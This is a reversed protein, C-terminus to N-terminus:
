GSPRIGCGCGSPPGPWGWGWFVGFAAQYTGLSATLLGAQVLLGRWRLGPQPFGQWAAALALLVASAMQPADYQFSLNALGYPQAFLGASALAAWLPRRCRFASALLTAALALIAVALIVGLPAIGSTPEGSNILRYLWDAFPRGVAGWGFGGDAERGLDDNYFDIRLILGLLLFWGM